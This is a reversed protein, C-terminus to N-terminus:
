LIQLLPILPNGSRFQLVFVFTQDGSLDFARLMTGVSIEEMVSRFCLVMVASM